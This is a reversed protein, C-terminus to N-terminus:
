QELSVPLQGQAVIKGSLLKALATYSAGTVKSTPGHKVVIQNYSYTTLVDTALPKYRTAEYPTRLSVFISQKNQQKAYQLLLAVERDTEWKKRKLKKIQSLDDMGGMEVASQKPSINAALFADAQDIQRYLHTLNDRYFTSCTIKLTQKELTLAQTLALCKAQDPMYLHLKKVSKNLRGKGKIKTLAAQALELEFRKHEKTALSMSAQQQKQRLSQSNVKAIEYKNKLTIIRKASAVVQNFDLQGSHVTQELDDLLLSLKKIDNISRIKIPMLAIDAGANFTEIVAQTEDFFDSIGAMDLADTIVLGKFRLKNRLLETIIKKSMTAPKIMRKGSKSVFTSNDLAPYQIHATMIAETQKTKIAETFPLLDVQEIQTLSHDVKPLGTHSDVHTDGHGPFHKLTAIVGQQQMAVLQSIGLEAVKSPSEGFSRVNIVPNKPNVNVDVNPALNLNFGLSKLEKAIIQGSKRAYKLGHKQYTAGIAMNGALATSINRPLRAVRGGEQDVAIFLPLGSPSSSAALQLDHTLQVIQNKAILNDSFLIIGGLNSNQIMHSLETPLKTLPKHCSQKGKYYKLESPQCYYRLDLMLKQAIATRISLDKNKNEIAKISSCSTLLIVFTFM